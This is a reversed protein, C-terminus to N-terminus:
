REQVIFSILNQLTPYRELFGLWNSVFSLRTRPISVEYTTWGSQAGHEDMAKVKITYIGEDDWSHLRSASEGFPETWRTYPTGGFSDDDWDFFYSLLDGDPDISVATYTYTVGPKGSPPGTITPSNPKQNEFLDVKILLADGIGHQSNKGTLIYGGDSILEVSEIIKYHFETEPISVQWEKNGYADTKILFGNYDSYEDSNFGAMIYGGDTTQIVEKGYYEFGPEGYTRNWEENGYEDIKILWGEVDVDNIFGAIIYGDDFTQRVSYGRALADDRGFFVNFEEAGYKDTKILIVSPPDPENNYIFGTLILGGDSTEYVSYGTGQENPYGWYENRWEENGDKDTKLLLVSGNTGDGTLVYGGDMTTNVSYGRGYGYRKNWVENGITDTKVLWVEHNESNYSRTLGTFIYGGDIAQQVSHGYDTKLAGPEGYTMNWEEDGDMNTKILWGNEYHDSGYSRTMGVMIFGGDSTKRIENGYDNYYEEGFTKVWQIGPNDILISQRAVNKMVKDSSSAIGTAGIFLIVIGFIL